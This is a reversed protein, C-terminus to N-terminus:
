PASPELEDALRELFRAVEDPDRLVFRASTHRNTDTVLIGVGIETIADFATEDTTDDGIHIPTPRELGLAALMWRVARGKDWDIDPRLEFVAKGRSKRLTPNRAQVQDVAAEVGARAEAAVLRQHAAVAFRKREVAAGEINTLRERLAREARDLAPLHDAGVEHRIGTDAPGAIDFGHSGVYALEELGVLRQVVSRDRGSVITVPCRAALSRLTHRVADPLLALDPREVIPTLTGDYDLFLAVTGGRLRATIQDYADLASPLSAAADLTMPDPRRGSM